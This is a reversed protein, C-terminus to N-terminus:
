FFNFFFSRPVSENGIIFFTFLDSAGGLPCSIKKKMNELIMIQAYDIMGKFKTLSHSDVLLNHSKLYHRNKTGQSAMKPNQAM